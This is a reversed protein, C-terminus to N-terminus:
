QRNFYGSRPLTPNERQLRDFYDQWKRQVSPENKAENDRLRPWSEGTAFDHVLVLERDGSDSVEVLGVLNSNEAKVIEFRAKKADGHADTFDWKPTVTKGNVVVTYYVPQSHAWCTAATIFIMRGDGCDFTAVHYEDLNRDVWMGIGLM